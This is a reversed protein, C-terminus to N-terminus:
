EKKGNDHLSKYASENYASEYFFNRQEISKLFLMRKEKKQGRCVARM